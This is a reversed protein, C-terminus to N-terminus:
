DLPNAAQYGNVVACKEINIYKGAGPDGTTRSAPSGNTGILINDPDATLVNIGEVEEDWETTGVSGSDYVSHKTNGIDFSYAIYKWEANGTNNNAMTEYDGGDEWVGITRGDTMINICIGENNTTDWAEFIITEVDPAASIYIKCWITQPTSVDIMGVNTWALYEDVDAIQVGVAGSEGYDTGIPLNVNTGDVKEKSSDCADNMDALDGTWAITYTEDLCAIASEGSGSLLMMPGLASAQFSLCFIFLISLILKKM